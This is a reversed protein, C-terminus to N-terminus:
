LLPKESEEFLYKEKEKIRNEHEQIWLHYEWEKWPDPLPRWALVKIDSDKYYDINWKEGSFTGMSTFKDGYYVFTVLVKEYVEPLRETIPIWRNEEVIKRAEKIAISENFDIYHHNQTDFSIELNLLTSIIEETSM